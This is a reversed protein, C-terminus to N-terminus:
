DIHMDNEAQRNSTARACDLCFNRQFPGSFDATSCMSCFQFHCQECQRTCSSCAQRDCFTCKHFVVTAREISSAAAPKTDMMMAAPKTTPFYSRLSNSLPINGQSQHQQQQHHPRQCIFCSKAHDDPRTVQMPSAHSTGSQISPKQKWWEVPRSSNVSMNLHDDNLGCEMAASTISVVGPSEPEATRQRKNSRAGDGNDNDEQSIVFAEENEHDLPRKKGAATDFHSQNNSMICHM